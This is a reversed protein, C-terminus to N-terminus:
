CFAARFRAYGWTLYANYLRVGLSIAGIVFLIVVSSYGKAHIISMTETIPNSDIMILKQFGSGNDLFPHAFPERERLM